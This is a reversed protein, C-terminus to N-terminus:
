KKLMYYFYNRLIDFFNIGDCIKLINKKQLDLDINDKSLYLKKFYQFYKQIELFNTFFNKLDSDCENFIEQEFEKSHAINDGKVKDKYLHDLFITITNIFEVEDKQTVKKMENIIINVKNEYKISPDIEKKFIVYLFDFIFKSSDRSKVLGNEIKYKSVDKQPENLKSILDDIKKKSNIDLSAMERSKKENNEFLSNIRTKLSKNIKLILQYKEKLDKICKKHTEKLNKLEKEHNKDLEKIEDKHKKTMENIESEHLKSTDELEGYLKNIVTQLQDIEKKLNEISNISAQMQMNIPNKEKKQIEFNNNIENIINNSSLKDKKGDKETSKLFSIIDEKTYKKDHLDKLLEKNNPKRRIFKNNVYDLTYKESDKGENQIPYFIKFFFTYCNIQPLNIAENKIYFIDNASIIEEVAKFLLLTSKNKKMLRYILYKEKEQFKAKKLPAFVVRYEEDKAVAPVNKLELLDIFESYDEDKQNEKFKNQQIFFEEIFLILLNLESKKKNEVKKFMNILEIYDKEEKLDPLIINFYKETLEKIAKIAYSSM